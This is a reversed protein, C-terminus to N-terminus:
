FAKQAGGLFLSLYISRKSPPLDVRHIPVIRKDEQILLKFVSLCAESKFFTPFPYSSKCGNQTAGRGMSSFCASTAIQRPSLLLTSRSCFINHYIPSRM